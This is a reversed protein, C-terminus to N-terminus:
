QYVPRFSFCKSSNQLHGEYFAHNSYDILQQYKSRYHWVLHHYGYTRKALVLLSESVMTEDIEEDLDEDEDEDIRFLDFPRLQKEDGMIVVHRGRYLSTLSREVACQSAEDFIVYDFLNRYLTFVSSVAEPSALWCPALTFIISEYKKILGRVTLVRRKKDLDAALSRWM